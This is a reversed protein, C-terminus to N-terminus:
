RWGIGGGPPWIDGIAAHAHPFSCPLPCSSMKFCFCMSVLRKKFTLKSGCLRSSEAAEARRRFNVKWEVQWWSVPMMVIIRLHKCGRIFQAPAGLPQGNSVQKARWWAAGVEMLCHEIGDDMVRLHQGSNAARSWGQSAKVPPSHKTFYICASILHSLKILCLDPLQIEMRRQVHSPHSGGATTKM